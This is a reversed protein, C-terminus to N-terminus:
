CRDRYSSPSCMECGRRIEGSSARQRFGAIEACACGCASYTQQQDDGDLASEAPREFSHVTGDM